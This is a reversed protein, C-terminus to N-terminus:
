FMSESCRLSLTGKLSDGLTRFISESYKLGGRTCLIGSGELLMIIKVLYNLIGPTKLCQLVVSTELDQRQQRKVVKTYVSTM